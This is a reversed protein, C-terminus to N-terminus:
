AFALAVRGLPGLDLEVRDGPEPLVLPPMAGAIIREGARLREGAAGALEAVHAVVAAPDGTAALADAAGREEGNVLVRAAVGDLAAGAAPEGFAVARHFVNGALIAELGLELDPRDTVEIAPGLAAIAAAAEDRTAGPAVDAGVHIAVECEAIGGARHSAGPELLGASTLFGIVPAAIGLRQQVAAINFGIKWGVPRAGGEILERRLVAQAALGRAVREDLTM